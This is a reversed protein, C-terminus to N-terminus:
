SSHNDFTIELLITEYITDRTSFSQGDIEEIHIVKFKKIMCIKYSRSFGKDICCISAKSDFFAYCKLKTVRLQILITFCHFPSTSLIHDKKTQSLPSDLQM